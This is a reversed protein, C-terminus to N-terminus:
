RWGVRDGEPPGLIKNIQTEDIGMERFERRLNEIRGKRVWKRWAEPTDAGRGTGLLINRDFGEPLGYNIGTTQLLGNM